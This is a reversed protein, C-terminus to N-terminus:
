IFFRYFFSYTQSNYIYFSGGIRRSTHFGAAITFPYIILTWSQVVIVEHYWPVCLAHLSLMILKFQITIIIINNNNHEADSIIRNCVINPADISIFMSNNFFDTILHNSLYSSKHLFYTFM